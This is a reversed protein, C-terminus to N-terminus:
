PTFSFVSGCGAFCTGGGGGLYTTGYYAGGKGATLGEYPFAGDKGGQFAYLVAETYGATKSPTLSFITGCGISCASAGGGGNTTGYLVGNSGAILSEEPFQGDNGGQFNYVTKETYKGGKPTLTFVTGCGSVAYISCPGNGGTHATGVITGSSSVYLGRGRTGPVDGGAGGPFGYVISETYSGGKPTLKYIVGCGDPCKTSGGGNDTTGYLVGGKGPVLTTEPDEGDNGGKFNYIVKYGTGKTSVEFVTGCGSQGDQSCSGSGGYTTVGYLETGSLLLADVPIGGDGKTAGFDHLASEAYASKSPTLKFVVGCGPGEYTCSGKGGTSTTGYLAGGSDMVLGSDVNSGDTDKPSFKYLVSEKYTTGSPTLKWVLGASDASVSTTGYLDGSSDSVPADYPGTGDNDGGTFAYLISDGASLPMTRVAAGGAGPPTVRSGSSCGALLAGLAILLAVSRLATTSRM